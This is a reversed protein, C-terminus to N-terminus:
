ALSAVFGLSELTESGGDVPYNAFGVVQNAFISNGTSLISEVDTGSKIVDLDSWEAMEEFSGDCNREVTAVSATALDRDGNFSVSTAPLYYIGHDDRYIGEFHTILDVGYEGNNYAFTQYNSFRGTVPDYDILYADAVVLDSDQESSDLVSGSGGAITYSGDENDWIGYATHTVLPNRDGPYRILTHEGTEIDVVFATSSLSFYGSKGDRDAQDANGVALGGDVSHVFTYTALGGSQTVGQVENWGTTTSGDKSGVYTFGVIAPDEATPTLDDLDRTFAGVYNVFDDGVLRDPGYVSTGAADFGEPVSIITWVGSGSVGNSQVADLPGQYVLGVPDPGSSNNAGVVLYTGNEDGGKIGQLYTVVDSSSGPNYQFPSIILDSNAM